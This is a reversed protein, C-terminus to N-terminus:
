GEPPGACLAGSDFRRARDTASTPSSAGAVPVLAVIVRSEPTPQRPPHIVQEAGVPAAPPGADRGVRPDDVAIDVATYIDDIVATLPPELVVEDDARTGIWPHDREGERAQLPQPQVCPTLEHEAQGAALKAERPRNGVLPAAAEPLLHRDGVHDAARTPDPQAQATVVM